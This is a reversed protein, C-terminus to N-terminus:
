VTAQIVRANTCNNMTALALCRRCAKEIAEEVLMARVKWYAWVDGRDCCYWEGTRFCCDPAECYDPSQCRAFAKGTVALEFKALVAADIQETTIETGDDATM